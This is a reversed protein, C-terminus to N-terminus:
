KEKKKKDKKRRRIQVKEKVDKSRKEQADKFAANLDRPVAPGAFYQQGHLTILVEIMRKKQEMAEVGRDYLSSSEKADLWEEYAEQYKASSKVASDLANETVKALGFSEPNKRAKSMLTSYLIDLAFKKRDVKSKARTAKSAWKFFLEGQMGAEVDLQEPDIKLDLEFEDTKM